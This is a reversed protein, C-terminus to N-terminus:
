ADGRPPVTYTSTRPSRTIRPPSPTTKAVPSIVAPQDADIAMTIKEKCAGCNSNLTLSVLCCAVPVSSKCHRLHAIASTAAAVWGGFRMPRFTVRAFPVTPAPDRASGLIM